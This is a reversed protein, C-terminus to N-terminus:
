EISVFDFSKIKTVVEGVIKYILILFLTLALRLGCLWHAMLCFVQIQNM